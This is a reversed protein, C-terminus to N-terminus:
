TYLYHNHETQSHKLLLERLIGMKFQDEILGREVLQRMQAVKLCNEERPYSQHHEWEDTDQQRIQHVKRNAKSFIWQGM